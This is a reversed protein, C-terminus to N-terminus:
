GFCCLDNQWLAMLIDKLYLM